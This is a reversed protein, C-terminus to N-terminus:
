QSSKDYINETNSLQTVSQQLTSHFKKYFFPKLTGPFTDNNSPFGTYITEMRTASAWPAIRLDFFDGLRILFELAAAVRFAGDAEPLPYAFTSDAAIAACLRRTQNSTLGKRRRKPANKFFVCAPAFPFIRFAVEMRGSKAM